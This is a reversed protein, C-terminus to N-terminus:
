PSPHWKSSQEVFLMSLARLRMSRRALNTSATRAIDAAPAEPKGREGVRGRL